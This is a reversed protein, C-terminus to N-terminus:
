EIGIYKIEQLKFPTEKVQIKIIDKIKEIMDNNLKTATSMKAKIPVGLVVKDQTGTFEQFNKNIEDMVEGLEEVQSGLDLNLIIDYVHKM